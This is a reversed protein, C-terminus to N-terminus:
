ASNWSVYGTFVQKRNVASPLDPFTGAERPAGSCLGYLIEVEEKLYREQSPLTRHGETGEKLQGENM